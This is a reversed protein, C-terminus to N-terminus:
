RAVSMLALPVLVILTIYFIPLKWFLVSVLRRHDNAASSGDLRRWVDVHTWRAYNTLNIRSYYLDTRLRMYESEGIKQRIRFILSWQYAVILYYPVFAFLVKAVFDNAYM